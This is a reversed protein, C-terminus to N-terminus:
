GGFLVDRPNLERIEELLSRYRRDQELAEVIRGEAELREGAAKAERAQALLAKSAFIRALRAELERSRAGTGGPALRTLPSVRAADISDRVDAEARLLLERQLRDELFNRDDTNVVGAGPLARTAARNSVFSGLVDAADDVAHSALGRAVAPSRMREDSRALDFELPELYGTLIFDGPVRTDWLDAHEFVSTFTGILAEVSEPSASFGQLWVSAVGGPALHARMQEFFERTFLASAGAMWPNGPQSVIVDYQRDTMAMHVRGDGIRLDVRKEM